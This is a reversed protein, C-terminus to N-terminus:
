LLFLGIRIMDPEFQANNSDKGNKVNQIEEQGSTTMTMQSQQELKKRTAVYQCTLDGGSAILGSSLCKTTLPHSELKQSYWAVPNTTTAFHVKAASSSSHHNNYDQKKKNKTPNSTSNYRRVKSNKLSTNISSLSPSKGGNRSIKHFSKNSYNIKSQRYEGICPFELKKLAFPGKKTFHFFRSSGKIKNCNNRITMM